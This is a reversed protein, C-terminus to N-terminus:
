FLPAAFFYAKLFVIQEDSPNLGGVEQIYDPARGM